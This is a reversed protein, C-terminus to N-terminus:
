QGRLKERLKRIRDTLSTTDQGAAKAKARRAVLRAISARIRDAPSPKDLSKILGAVRIREEHLNIGDLDNKRGYTALRPVGDIDGNAWDLHRLLSPNPHLGYAKMLAATGLRLGNLQAQKKASAWSEGYTHDTEVGLAVSNMADKPVGWGPGGTGAHNTLMSAILHWTGSPHTGNCGSCVWACGAPAIEMYKMWEVAGPSDQNAPSADHHWLIFKVDRYSQGRFGVDRWSKGAYPGRTYREEIVNVGAARLIDAADRINTRAM